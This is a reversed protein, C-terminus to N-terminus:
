LIIEHIDPDLVPVSFMFISISVEKTECFKGAFTEEYIMIRDTNLLSGREETM